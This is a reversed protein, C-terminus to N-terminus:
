RGNEGPYWAEYVDTTAAEGAAKRENCRRCLLQINSVDNLGGSELPVIHDFNETPWVSVLGSLDSHCLVCCGRDRYFVARRVWKPPRVRRLVGKRSFLPRYEDDIEDPDADEVQSAIMENFLLLLGRNQFLVFFVESVMRELLEDVAGDDRLSMVYDHVDDRTAAAFATKKVNLYDDFSPHPIAHFKLAENIPLHSPRMHEVVAPLSAYNEAQQQRKEIELDMTADLIVQETVHFIFAHFASNRRYPTVLSLYAGDGYFENLSRIFSFQDHLINRVINALYYTEYFRIEIKPREM